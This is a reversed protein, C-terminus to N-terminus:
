KEAVAKLGKLFEPMSDKSHKQRAEDVYGIQTWTFETYSGAPKLTYIVKSYNEPKNELGSFGSWYSYAIKELPKIELITGMDKYKHGQYEGQFIIPSGVKWDTVTDTGFLYQKILDPNTLVEWMKTVPVHVIITESVSLNHNM